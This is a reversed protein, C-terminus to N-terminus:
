SSPKCQTDCEVNVGHDGLLGTEEQYANKYQLSQISQCIKANYTLKRPPKEMSKCRSLMMDETKGVAPQMNISMMM